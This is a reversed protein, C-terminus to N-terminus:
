RVATEPLGLLTVRVGVPDALRFTACTGGDGAKTSQGGFRDVADFVNQYRLNKDSAISTRSPRHLMPAEVDQLSSKDRFAQRDDKVRLPTFRKFNVAVSKSVGSDVAM